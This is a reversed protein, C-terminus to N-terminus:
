KICEATHEIGMAIDIAQKLDPNKTLLNEQIKSNNTCRVLQDRILSDMLVGFECTNSLGRLVATYSNVKECKGQVRSFFRHRELVVNVKKEFHEELCNLTFLYVDMRSSVEGSETSEEIEQPILNDYVKRGEIGLNHLLM